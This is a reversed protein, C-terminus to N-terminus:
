IEFIGQDDRLLLESSIISFAIFGEEGLGSGDLEETVNIGAIISPDQPVDGVICLIDDICIIIISM